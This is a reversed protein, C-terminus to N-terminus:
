LAARFVWLFSMCATAPRRDTEGRSALQDEKRRLRGKREEDRWSSLDADGSRAKTLKREVERPVRESGRATRRATIWSPGCRM